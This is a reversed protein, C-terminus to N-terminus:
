GGDKRGGERREREREGRERGGERGGEEMGGERERMYVTSHMYSHLHALLDCCCMCM